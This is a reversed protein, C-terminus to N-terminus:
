CIEEGKQKETFQQKKVHSNNQEPDVWRLNSIHNNFPNDDIHDVICTKRIIHRASEPTNDWDEKPIPPNEDIPKFTEMVARHVSIRVKSTNKSHSVYSYDTFLDKPFCITVAQRNGKEEYIENKLKLLKEKGERISKIRGFTSVWYNPIIKKKKIMPRWEEGDYNQIQVESDM